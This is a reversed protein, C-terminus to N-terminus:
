RQIQKSCFRHMQLRLYLKKHVNNITLVLAVNLLKADRLFQEYLQWVGEM